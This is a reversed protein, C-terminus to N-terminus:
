KGKLKRYKKIANFLKDTYKDVKDKYIAGYPTNRVAMLIVIDDIPESTLDEYMLAYATTQVFYDEIQEKTRYKNSTKFDIISLVGNYEAICDVSGALQLSDSYLSRELLRINNIRSLHTKLQKFFEKGEKDKVDMSSIDKNYLYHEILNHMDTGRTLAQDTIKKANDHGITNKWSTIYPKEEISLMTTVSPYKNGEPTIYHRKGSPLAVQKLKPIDVTPPIHVFPM